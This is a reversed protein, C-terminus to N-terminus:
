SKNHCVFHSMGMPLVKICWQMCAMSTDLKKVGKLLTVIDTFLKETERSQLEWICKSKDIGERGQQKQHSKCMNIYRNVMNQIATVYM